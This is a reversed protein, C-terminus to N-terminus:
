ANADKAEGVANPTYNTNFDENRMTVLRGTAPDYVAVDGLHMTKNRDQPSLNEAGTRQDEVTLDWTAAGNVNYARLTSNFNIGLLAQMLPVVDAANQLYFYQVGSKAKRTATGQPM